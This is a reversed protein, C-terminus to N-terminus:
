SGSPHQHKSSMSKRLCKRSRLISCWVSFDGRSKWRPRGGGVIKKKQGPCLMWPRICAPDPRRWHSCGWGLSLYPNSRLFEKFLCLKIRNNGSLSAERLLWLFDCILEFPVFSLNLRYFQPAPPFTLTCSPIIVGARLCHM